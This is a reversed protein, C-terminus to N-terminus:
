CLSSLAAVAERLLNPDFGPALEIRTAGVHILIAPANTARPLSENITLPVFHASSSTSNLSSRDRLTRLWYRLQDRTVHNEDCWTQMTKGSSQYDAVRTTWEQRRQEKRSM